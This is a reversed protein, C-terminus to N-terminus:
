DCSIKLSNGANDEVYGLSNTTVSLVKDTDSDLKGRRNQWEDHPLCEVTLRRGQFTKSHDVIFREGYNLEVSRVSDAKAESSMGSLITAAILTITVLKM